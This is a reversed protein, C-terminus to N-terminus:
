PPAALPPAAPPLANALRAFEAISLTEGRRDGHIGATALAQATQDPTFRARMANKLTKRRQGFAAHVVAAYREEDDIPERTKGGALPVLELVSSDVKPSPHFATRPAAVVRRADAYTQVMVGMAGYASTDPKALVRDAMEKQLMIVIRSLSTRVELLDFIIRAAIQYPLNGGAVIAKGARAAVARYDFTLANEDAIEVNPADGLEGRLVRVMDPDREVVIVRGAPVARGLRASLTGLGGGIEVIWDSPERVMARVIGDYVKEHVLFNQGWSKKARLDYKTLLARPDAIRERGDVASM